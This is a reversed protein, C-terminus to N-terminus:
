KKQEKEKKTPQLIVKVRGGKEGSKQGTARVIRKNLDYVIHEGTFEDKGRWLHANGNMELLGDQLNYEMHAANAKISDSTQPDKKELYVPSGDAIAKQLTSGKSHLTVSSARLQLNGQSMVVQGSYHSVGKANDMELRDAEVTIPQQQPAEAASLLGPLLLLLLLKALHRM